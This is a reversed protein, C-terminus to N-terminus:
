NSHTEILEMAKEIELDRNKLLDELTYKILFDPIVGRGFEKAEPVDMVMKWAPIIVKLKSNPLTLRPQFGSVDGRYTGGSEEGILTVNPLTSAKAAFESNASFTSGNILIYINGKFNNPSPELIGYSPEHEWLFYGQNTPTLRDFYFKKIEQRSESYPRFSFYKNFYSMDNSAVEIRSYLKFLSDTLHSFLIAVHDESVLGNYRMDIILHKLQNQDIAHFISDMLDSFGATDENLTTGSDYISLKAAEIDKLIEFGIDRKLELLANRQLATFSTHLGPIQRVLLESNKAIHGIKFQQYDGFLVSYYYAFLFELRKYPYTDSYGDGGIHLLIEDRIETIPTGNISILQTGKPLSFEELLSEIVLVSEELFTLQFPFLFRIKDFWAQHMWVQTHGNRFKALEKSIVSFIEVTNLPHKLDAVMHDISQDWDSKKRYDFLGPHYAELYKKLTKLDEEVDEPPFVYELLLDSKKNKSSYQENLSVQQELDEILQKDLNSEKIVNYHQWFSEDYDFAMLNWPSHELKEQKSPMRLNDTIIENVLLRHIPKASYVVKGTNSNSLTSAHSSEHYYPYYKGRFKRFLLKQHVDIVKFMLSDNRIGDFSNKVQSYDDYRVVEIIAYDSADIYFKKVGLDKFNNAPNPSYEFKASVVYILQNDKVLVTDLVYTNRKANLGGTNFYKLDNSLLLGFMMNGHDVFLGTGKLREDYLDYSRRVNEVTIQEDVKWRSKRSSKYSTDDFINVAAEVLSVYKGNLKREERYFAKLQFPEMPYNKQINQIVKDIIDEPDLKKESIVIEKLVVKEVKLQIKLKGETSIDAVKKLFSSYGMYSIQLTDNKYNNFIRLDFEGSENTVTGISEGKIWVSAYPLPVRSEADVVEGSVTIFSQSVTFESLFLFPILIIYKM